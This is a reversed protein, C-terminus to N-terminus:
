FFALQQINKAEYNLYELIFLEREKNYHEQKPYWEFFNKDQKSSNCRRCSPIINNHTYEGGNILSIFHDQHLQENFEEIHKREEMGCYACSNNFSKKIQDWQKLTLTYPLKKKRAKYNQQWINHLERNEKRYQKNCKLIQKKNEKYYQKNRERHYEKRHEANDKCWRKNWKRYRDKNEEYYQKSYEVIQEKNEKRWHKMQEALQEKNEKRYLKNYESIKEKNEERWQRTRDKNEDRYRKDCEKCRSRLGYKGTSQKTFYETTAPFERKCKNCVKISEM